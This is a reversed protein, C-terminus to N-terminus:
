GAPARLTVGIEIGQQFQVEFAETMGAPLYIKGTLIPLSDLLTFDRVNTKGFTFKFADGAKYGVGTETLYGYPAYRGNSDYYSVTYKTGTDTSPINVKYTKPGDSAYVYVYDSNYTGIQTDGDYTTVTVQVNASNESGAPLSIAGTVAYKAIVLELDPVTTDGSISATISVAQNFIINTDYSSSISSGTYQITYEGAEKPVVVSYAWPGAGSTVRFSGSYSSGSPSLISINKTTSSSGMSVYGGEAPKVAGSIIWGKKVVIKLNKVGADTVTVPSAESINTVAATGTSYYYYGEVVGDQIATYGKVVGNEIAKYGSVVGDEIKQFGNKVTDAVRQSNNDMTRTNQAGAVGSVAIAALLMIVSKFNRNM